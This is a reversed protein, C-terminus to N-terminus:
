YYIEYAIVRTDGTQTTVTGATYSYITFSGIGADACLVGLATSGNLGMGQLFIKSTPSVNADTVLAYGAALTVSGKTSVQGQLKAVAQEVTDTAVVAVNTPTPLGTLPTALVRAETFYLNTSEAVAATNLTGLSGDGKVYQSTTGGPGPIAAWTPEGAVVTLVQGTTGVPLETPVGAAGGKILSGLATMPDTFGAPTGWSANTGDTTLFKGSNGTQAPIQIPLATWSYTTGDTGLFKGTQGAV